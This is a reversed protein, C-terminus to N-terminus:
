RCYKGEKYNNGRFKEGKANVEHISTKKTWVCTTWDACQGQEVFWGQTKQKIYNIARTIRNLFDVCTRHPDYGVTNKSKEKFPSMDSSAHMFWGRHTGNRLKNLVTLFVPYKRPMCIILNRCYIILYHILIWNDNTLLFIGSLKFDEVEWNLTLDSQKKVPAEGILTNNESHCKLMKSHIGNALRDNTMLLLDDKMAPIDDTTQTNEHSYVYYPRFFLMNRNSLTHMCSRNCSHTVTIIKCM